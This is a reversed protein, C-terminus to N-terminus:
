DAQLSMEMKSSAFQLALHISAFLSGRTGRDIDDMDVSHGSLCTEM